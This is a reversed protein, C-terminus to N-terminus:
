NLSDDIVNFNMDYEVIKEGHIALYPFQKKVIDEAERWDNALINFGIFHKLLGDTTDIATLTTIFTKLVTATM